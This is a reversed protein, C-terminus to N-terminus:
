TGVNNNSNVGHGGQGSRQCQNGKVFKGYSKCSSRSTFSGMSFPAIHTSWSPASSSCIDWVNSFRIPYVNRVYSFYRLDLLDKGLHIQVKLRSYGPYWANENSYDVELLEAFGSILRHFLNVSWLHQPIGEM